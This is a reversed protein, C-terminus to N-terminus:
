TASMIHSLLFKGAQQPDEAIISDMEQDPVVPAFQHNFQVELRDIKEKTETLDRAMAVITGEIRKIANAIATLNNNSNNSM